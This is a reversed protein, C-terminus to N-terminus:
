QLSPMDAPKVQQSQADGTGVRSLTFTFVKSETATTYYNLTSGFRAYETTHAFSKASDDWNIGIMDYLVYQGDTIGEVTWNQGGKVYVALLANKPDDASAMIVVADEGSLRNKIVLQGYGGQLKWVIQTGTALSKIPTITPPATTVSPIPTPLITPVVTPSPSLDACGCFVIGLIVVLYAFRYKMFMAM